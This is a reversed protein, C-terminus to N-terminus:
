RGVGAMYLGSDVDLEMGQADMETVRTRDESIEIRMKAEPQKPTDPETLWDGVVDGVWGGAMSGLMGGVATGVGPLIISGITAGLVGGGVSGATSIGAQATRGWKQSSTLSEDTMIDAVDIVSGVAAIAAGAGGLGRSLGRHRGLFKSGRRLWGGRKQSRGSSKGSKGSDGQWGGGYEEPMMSMQRNVVYVPLPLKMGGLGAAANNVGGKRGFLSRTGTYAKRGLVLAGLGAAGYGLVSMATDAGESGMANLADAAMQIPGTLNSDAFKSWATYLATMSSAADDAARASDEMLKSGDGQVDMFKSLSDLQGSKLFEFNAQNFARVAEADFFRGLKVKDGGVKVIIEQMLENIPRLVRKGQELKEPDFIQLGLKHLQKLKRPDSLTRLTAEFATAAVEPVGTGQMIMQLAAGMERMAKPGSRGMSTYATVVRPGLSALNQLTFAGMKGQETLTDLTQLVAESSTIGQKQLEALLGGIDQGAAGTAQIAVGINHINDEAFKLDGTREVITEIASIIQSPDVRIDPAQATEYIRQKLEDMREASASAQIGLRTYRKQLGMLMNATGVGAAGSVMATYKNGLSDMGRGVALTSRRLMQMSRSGRKAMNTIANSYSRSKSQLNGALDLIVSTRLNSM